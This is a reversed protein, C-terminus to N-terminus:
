ISLIVSLELSQAVAIIRLLNDLASHTRNRLSISIGHAFILDVAQGVTDGAPTAGLYARASNM